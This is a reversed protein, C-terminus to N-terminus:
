GPQDKEKGFFQFQKVRAFARKRHLAREIHICLRAIDSTYKSEDETFYQQGNWSKPPHLLEALKEFLHKM